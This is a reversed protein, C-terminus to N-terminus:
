VFQSFLTIFVANGRATGRATSISEDVIQFSITSNDPKLSPYIAISCHITKNTRSLCPALGKKHHQAVISQM